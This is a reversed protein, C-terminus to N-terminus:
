FTKLKGSGIQSYKSGCVFLIYSFGLFQWLNYVFLYTKRLTELSFSPHSLSENTLLDDLENPSTSIPVDNEDEM